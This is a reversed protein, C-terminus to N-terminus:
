TQRDAQGVGLPRMTVEGRQSSFHRAVPWLRAVGVHVERSVSVWGPRRDQNQKTGAAKWDCRGIKGILTIEALQRRMAVAYRRYAIADIRVPCPLCKQETDHRDHWGFDGPCKWLKRHQANRGPAIDRGSKEV